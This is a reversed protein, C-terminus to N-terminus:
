AHRSYREPGAADPTGSSAGGGCEGSSPGDGACLCPTNPMAPQMLGLSASANSPAWGPAKLSEPEGYSTGLELQCRSAPVSPVSVKLSSGYARATACHMALLQMVHALHLSLHQSRSQACTSAPKPSLYACCRAQALQHASQTPNSPHWGPKASRSGLWKAAGWGCAAGLAIQLLAAHSPDPRQLTPLACVLKSHEHM